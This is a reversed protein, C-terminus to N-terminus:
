PCLWQKCYSQHINIPAGRESRARLCGAIVTIMERRISM